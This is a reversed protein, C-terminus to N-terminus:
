LSRKVTVIAMKGPPLAKTAAELGKVPKGRTMAAPPLLLTREGGVKMGLLGFDLGSALNRSGLALPLEAKYAAEGTSNWVTLAITITQGCQAGAGSGAVDEIMRLALSSSAGRDLTCNKTAAYDPDIARKWGEVDTMQALGPYDKENIVPANAATPGAQRGLNSANIVMYGLAFLFLWSLWRPFM